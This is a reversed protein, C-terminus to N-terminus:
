GNSNALEFLEDVTSTIPVVKEYYFTPGHPGAKERLKKLLGEAAALDGVYGLNLNDSVDRELFSFIVYLVPESAPITGTIVPYKNAHRTGCLLRAWERGVRDYLYYTREGDFEQHGDAYQAETVGARDPGSGNGSYGYQDYGEDDNVSEPNKGKDFDGGNKEWWDQDQRYSNTVTPSYKGVGM